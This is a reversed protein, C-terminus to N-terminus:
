EEKINKIIKKCIDTCKFVQSKFKDQNECDLLSELNNILQIFYKDNVILKNGGCLELMLSNFYTELTDFEHDRIPLLKWINTRLMEFYEILDKKDITSGYKIKM